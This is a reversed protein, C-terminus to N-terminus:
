KQKKIKFMKLTVMKGIVYNIDSKLTSGKQINSLGDGRLIMNTATLTYMQENLEVVLLRKKEM